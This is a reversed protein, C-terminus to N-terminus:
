VGVRHRHHTRGALNRDHKGQPVSGPEPKWSATVIGLLANFFREHPDPAHSLAMHYLVVCLAALLGLILVLAM